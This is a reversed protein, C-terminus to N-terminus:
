ANDNQSTYRVVLSYARVLIGGSPSLIYLTYISYLKTHMHLFVTGPEEIHGSSYHGLLPSTRPINQSYLTINPDDM